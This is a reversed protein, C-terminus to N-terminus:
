LIKGVISQVAKSLAAEKDQELKEELTKIDADLRTQANKIKEDIVKMVQSRIDKQSGFM